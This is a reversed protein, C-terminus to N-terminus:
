SRSRIANLITGTLLVLGTLFISASVAWLPAFIAAFCAGAWALMLSSVFKRFRDWRLWRSRRLINRDLLDLARDVDSSLLWNKKISILASSKNRVTDETINAIRKAGVCLGLGALSGLVTWRAYSPFLLSAVFSGIFLVQQEQLFKSKKREFAGLIERIADSHKSIADEGIRIEWLESAVDRPNQPDTM